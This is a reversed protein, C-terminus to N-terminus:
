LVEWGNCYVDNWDQPGKPGFWNKPAITKGGGLWAGWWSFSSNAIIHANCWSMVCLDVNLDNEMYVTNEPLWKMNNKCWKVDDSFIVPIIEDGFYESMKAFAEQYYEDTQNYHYEHLQTYDTKRLHMSVTVGEPLLEGAKHRIKEKFTFMTKIDQECHKFYKETQYYGYCDISIDAPFEFVNENFSFGQEAYVGTQEVIGDEVGTMEFCDKLTSNALNLVPTHGTKKAIGYISAAQFMQNGHRGFSGLRNFGLQTM